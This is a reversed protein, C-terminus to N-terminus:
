QNLEENTVPKGHIMLNAKRESDDDILRQWEVITKGELPIKCGAIYFNDRDYELNITKM